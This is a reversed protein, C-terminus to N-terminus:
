IWHFRCGSSNLLVKIIGDSLKGSYSMQIAPVEISVSDNSLLKVEAPIGTAGQEPVDMTVDDNNFHFVLGLEQQGATLVGKWTGSINQAKAATVAMMIVITFLLAKKMKM